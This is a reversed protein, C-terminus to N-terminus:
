LKIIHCSPQFGVEFSPPRGCNEPLTTSCRCTVTLSPPVVEVSKSSFHHSAKKKTAIKNTRNDDGQSTESSHYAADNKPVIIRLSYWDKCPLIVRCAKRAM